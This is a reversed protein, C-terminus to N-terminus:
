CRFREIYPIYITKLNIKGNDYKGSVVDFFVTFWDPRDFGYMKEIRKVLAPDLGRAGRYDSPDSTEGGSGGVRATAEVDLGQLRAM